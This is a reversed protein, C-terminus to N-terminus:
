LDALNAYFRRSGTPETLDVAPAPHETETGSEDTSPQNVTSKTVDENHGVPDAQRGM